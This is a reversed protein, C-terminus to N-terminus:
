IFELTWVVGTDEYKLDINGCSFLYYYHTKTMFRMPQKNHDALQQCISLREVHNKCSKLAILCMHFVLSKKNVKKPEKQQTTLKEDRIHQLSM